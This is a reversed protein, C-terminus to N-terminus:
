GCSFGCDMDVHGDAYQGKEFNCHHSQDDAAWDTMGPYSFTPPDSDEAGAKIRLPSPLLSPFDIWQGTPAEHLASFDHSIAM